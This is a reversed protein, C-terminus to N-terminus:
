NFKYYKLYKTLWHSLLMLLWNYFILRDLVVVMYGNLWMVLWCGMLLWSFLLIILSASLWDCLWGTKDSSATGGILGSGPLGRLWRALAVAVYGIMCGARVALWGGLKGAGYIDLGMSVWDCLYGAVYSALWMALWRCHRGSRLLSDGIILYGGM